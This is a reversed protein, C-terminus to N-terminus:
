WMKLQGTRSLIATFKQPRAIRGHEVLENYDEHAAMKRWILILFQTNASIIVGSCIMCWRVM